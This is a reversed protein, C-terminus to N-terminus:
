RPHDGALLRSRVFSIHGRLGYFQDAFSSPVRIRNVADEIDDIRVLLEERKEPTLQPTLDQEIFMLAKYWKFIRSKIRWRYVAPILRLGPLLVIIMPVLVLLIRSMLSALSYPLYRYLFGKGSKYFRSADESIRYEHEIPSPFEGRRQLITARNHVEIAAEILLDSLAPHLDQRAIIEVTPGILSIDQPPLNEGFDIVGKPLTLKNLYKVRRTYGDAQSFSFLRVGPTRLLKRIMESSVSDGMLFVADLKGDLMDQAAKDSDTELLKTPGGPEIGNLKLLELSLTHTGSGAEGLAIKKGKLQSLIEETGPGRYFVFLPEYFVSGLSMLKDTKADKVVGGQVFGVDVRFAPDLLRKLNDVSGESPVIKMAVGNRALIEAYRGANREFTSGKPGSSMVITAPPALYIFLIIAGIVVAAVLAGASIAAARSLGFVEKFITQIKGMNIIKGATM